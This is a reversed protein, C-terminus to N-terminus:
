LWDTAEVGATTLVDVMEDAATPLIGDNDEPVGVKLKRRVRNAMFGALIKLWIFGFPQFILLLRVSVTQFTSFGAM